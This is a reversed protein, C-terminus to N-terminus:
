IVARGNLGIGKFAKDILMALRPLYGSDEIISFMIFFLTVIPLVIALAYSLGLTFIGYEGVFLDRLVQSPIYREALAALWPNIYEGFVTGEIFDVLTGAGFVGVFKYFGFYLVLALLPIGTLPSMMLRSLTERFSRGKQENRTVVSEAVEHVQSLRPRSIVVSLPLTFAKVAEEVIADILAAAGSEARHVRATIDSDRQLLLLAIMEKSIGYEGVLLPCIRSLARRIEEPYDVPELKASQKPNQHSLM